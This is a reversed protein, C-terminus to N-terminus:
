LTKPYARFVLPPNNVSKGSLHGVIATSLDTNDGILTWLVAVDGSM